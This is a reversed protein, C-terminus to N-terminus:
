PVRILEPYDSIIGDVGLKTLLHARHSSNITYTIIKLGRQHALDIIQKWALWYPVIVYDVSPPNQRLMKTKNYLAYPNYNFILGTKISPALKKFQQIENTNFSTVLLHEQVQYQKIIQAVPQATAHGKLEINIISHPYHQTMELVQSLLPIRQHNGANLAQLQASTMEAILGFGNTTRNVSIDHIVVSEGSKCQHVDLEISFSNSLANSFAALTNEPANKGGRHAFILPQTAQIISSSLLALALIYKM